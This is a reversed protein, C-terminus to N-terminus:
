GYVSGGYEAIAQYFAELLDPRHSPITHSPGAIYGGGASMENIRKKVEADISEATADPSNLVFQSDIGGHFSIKDGYIDKMKKLDNCPQCLNWIDAGNEVIDGFIADIKGCSHQNIIIGRKKMCEYIRKTHPKIIKRWTDPPIFLNRQTGWDDGYWVMDLKVEDDFKSIFQIKYDAIAGVLEDMVEPELMYNILANEMGLLLYTREFLGMEVFGEYLFESRDINAVQNKLYEWDFMEVDPFVVKDRWNKIDDVVYNGVAPYSGGEAGEEFQWECGFVDKGACLPRELIPPYLRIVNEMGNPVWEPGTRNIAALLNQKRTM